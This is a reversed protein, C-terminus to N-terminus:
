LALERGAAFLDQAETRLREISRGDSVYRSFELNHEVGSETLNPSGYLGGYQGVYIKAHIDAHQRVLIGPQRAALDRLPVVYRIRRVRTTEKRVLMRIQGGNVAIQTLADFLSPQPEASAVITHL